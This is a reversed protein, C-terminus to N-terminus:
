EYYTVQELIKLPKPPYHFLVIECVNMITIEPINQPDLIKSLFINQNLHHSQSQKKIFWDKIFCLSDCLTVVLMSLNSPLLQALALIRIVEYVGYSFFCSPRLIQIASNHIFCGFIHHACILVKSDGRKTIM